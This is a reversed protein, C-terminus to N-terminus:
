MEDKFNRWINIGLWHGKKKCDGRWLALTGSLIRDPLNLSFFWIRFTRVKFMNTNTLSSVQTRRQWKSDCLRNGSLSQAVEWVHANPPELTRHSLSRWEFAKWGTRDRGRPLFIAKKSIELENICTEVVEPIRLCQQDIKVSEISLRCKRSEKGEENQNKWSSRCVGFNITKTSRLYFQSNRLIIRKWNGPFGEMSRDRSYRPIALYNSM